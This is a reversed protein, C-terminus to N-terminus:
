PKMKRRIAENEEISVVTVHYCESVDSCDNVTVEVAYNGTISPTFSQSTANAIPANSNDCDLWQYTAGSQNANLTTGNDAISVDIQPITLNLTVVSDCEAENELIYTATSNSESYVNGDIWTFSGCASVVDTATSSTCLLAMTTHSWLITTHSWLGNSDAVRLFLTDGSTWGAPVDEQPIDIHWTNDAAATLTLSSNSGFGNDVDFFYEVKIVNSFPTNEGVDILKRTTHSWNGNDDRTRFYVFHYGTGSFASYPINFAQTIDENTPNIEFSTAAGFGPDTGIFYEGQVIEQARTSVLLFIFVVCFIVRKM